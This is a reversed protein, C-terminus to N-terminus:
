GHRLRDATHIRLRRRHTIAEHQFVRLLMHKARQIGIPLQRINKLANRFTLDLDQSSAQRRRININHPPMQQISPRPFIAILGRCGPSPFPNSAGSPAQFELTNSYMPIPLHHSKAEASREATFDWARQRSPAPGSRHALTLNRSTEKVFSSDVELMKSMELVEEKAPPTSDKGRDARPHTVVHLTPNCRPFM